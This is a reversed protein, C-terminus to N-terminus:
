ILRQMSSASSTQPKGAILPQPQQRQLLTKAVFSLSASTITCTGRVQMLPISGLAAAAPKQAGVTALPGRPTIPRAASAGTQGATSSMSLPPAHGRSSSLPRLLNLGLGIPVSATNPRGDAALPVMGGGGSDFKKLADLAASAARPTVPRTVPASAAPTGADLSVLSSSLGGVGAWSLGGRSSPRASSASAADTPGPGSPAPPSDDLKLLSIRDPFSFPFYSPFPPAPLM